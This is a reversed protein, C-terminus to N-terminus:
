APWCWARLGRELFGYRAISVSLKEPFVVIMRGDSFTRLTVKRPRAASLREMTKTRILRVPMCALKEMAPACFLRVSREFQHLQRQSIM